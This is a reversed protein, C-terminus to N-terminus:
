LFLYYVEVCYENDKDERYCTNKDNPFHRSLHRRWIQLVLGSVNHGFPWLFIHECIRFEGIEEVTNINGLVLASDEPVREAHCLMLWLENEYSSEALIGSAILGVVVVYLHAALVM